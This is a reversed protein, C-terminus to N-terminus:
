ELHEVSLYVSLCLPSQQASPAIDFVYILRHDM